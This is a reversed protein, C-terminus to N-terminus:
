PPAFALRAAELGAVNDLKAFFFAMAPGLFIFGALAGALASTELTTPPALLNRHVWAGASAGIPALVSSLMFWGDHSKLDDPEYIGQIIGVFFFGIGVAVGYAWGASSLQAAWMAVAGIM